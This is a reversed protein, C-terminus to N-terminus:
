CCLSRRGWLRRRRRPLRFLPAPELASAAAQLNLQMVVNVTGCSQTAFGQSRPSDQEKWVCEVNQSRQALLSIPGSPTAHVAHGPPVSGSAGCFAHTGQGGPLSDFIPSHVVQGAPLIPTPPVHLLQVASPVTGLAACVAHTEQGGPVSDFLPSHVVQGAPLTPTPPVHLM